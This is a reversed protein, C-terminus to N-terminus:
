KKPRKFLFEGNAVATLEWGAAGLHNMATLGFAVDPRPEAGIQKLLDNQRGEIVKIFDPQGDSGTPAAPQPANGTMTRDPLVIRFNGPDVVCYEWATVGDPLTTAAAGPDDGGCGLLGCCALGMLSSAVLWAAARTGRCLPRSSAFSVM